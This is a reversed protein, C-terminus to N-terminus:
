FIIIVVADFNYYLIYTSDHWKCVLVYAELASHQMSPFLFRHSLLHALDSFKIYQNFGNIHKRCANTVSVVLAQLMM